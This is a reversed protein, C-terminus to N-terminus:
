HSVVGSASTRYIVQIDSYKERLDSFFEERTTSTVLETVALQQLAEYAQHAHRVPSFFLIRPLFSSELM